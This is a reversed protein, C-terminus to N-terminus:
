PSGEHALAQHLDVEQIVALRASRRVSERSTGAGGPSKAADWTCDQFGCAREYPYSRCMEPRDDYNGCDGNAQLHRCTYFGPPDQPLPVIMPYIVEVDEPMRRGFGGGNDLYVLNRGALFAEFALGLEQYTWGGIHFRKCCHGTCRDGM